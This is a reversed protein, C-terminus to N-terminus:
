DPMKEMMMMCTGCLRKKADIRNRNPPPPPAAHMAVEKRNPLSSQAGKRTVALAAAVNAFGVAALADMGESLGVAFAGNFCDGAATTDVATVKMTEQVVAGQKSVLLAGREGLTVLVNEAGLSRMRGAAETLAEVTTEACGALHALETENPTLYDLCATVDQPLGDPAPAPNLIVTKGLERGRRIAHHVAAEDIEMQLMLIDSQRIAEDNEVLYAVDCRRNAGPVVIISNRGERDVQIIATGTPEDPLRRIRGTEVSCRKLSNLLQEGNDDSGVCGLMEVCGGLLGAACAQNAGKGGPVLQMDQALVTEGVEPMARMRIVVDMNLSGIVLIKKMGIGWRWLNRFDRAIRTGPTMMDDPMAIDVPHRSILSARKDFHFSWDLTPM